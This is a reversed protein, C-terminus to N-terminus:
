CFVCFILPLNYEKYAHGGLGDVRGVAPIIVGSRGPGHFVIHFLSFRPLHDRAERQEIVGLIQAAALLVLPAEASLDDATGLTSM